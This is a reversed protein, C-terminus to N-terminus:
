RAPMLGDAKRAQRHLWGFRTATQILFAAGFACAFATAMPMAPLTLSLVVCFAAFAHYGLVMGRLLQIAFAAGGQRHSFVVLVSGMVPFMAFVGSLRPGMTQAFHTVTCVLLASALMRLPMDRGSRSSATSSAAIAQAPPYLRPALVLAALVAATSMALTPAAANLGAVAIAYGVFGAGLSAPWGHRTATWAYAIGFALIALVASLTSAAARATFAPGQEIAMFALIPGAVVPFASLWGAVSPGWRRGALTVAAILLPVVSLKFAFIVDM